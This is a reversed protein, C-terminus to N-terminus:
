LTQRQAFWTLGRSVLGMKMTSHDEGPLEHVGDVPVGRKALVVRLQECGEAMRDHVNGPLATGERERSGLFIAVRAHAAQAIGVNESDRLDNLLQPDFCVSPSGLTFNQFALPRALLVQLAIVASYSAGLLCRRSRVCADPRLGLLNSEVYPMVKDVLDEVFRKACLNPGGGARIAKHNEPPFDRRRLNRLKDKDFGEADLGFSEAAHGVGVVFLQRFQAEEIGQNDPFYGAQAAAFLAAAGFLLPEPDLVYLILPSEEVAKARHRRPPGAILIDLPLPPLGKRRPLVFRHRRARRTGAVASASTRRWASLVSCTAAALIAGAVARVALSAAASTGWAASPWWVAMAFLSLSLSGALLAPFM